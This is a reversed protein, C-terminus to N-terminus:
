TCATKIQAPKLKKFRAGRHYTKQWGQNTAEPEHRKLRELFKDREVAWEQYQKLKRPPLDNKAKTVCFLDKMASIRVPIVRAIAQGAVFHVWEDRMTMRWNMTFTMNAWSTEVIGELPAIGDMPDNAPGTVWLSWGRPTKFLYPIVFSVIGSGFHSAILNTEPVVELDEEKNGGNWRLSIGWRTCLELGSRNAIALPTCRYAFHPLWDRKVDPQRLIICTEECDSHLNYAEIRM